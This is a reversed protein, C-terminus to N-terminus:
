VLLPGTPAPTAGDPWCDEELSGERGWRIEDGNIWLCFSEASQHPLSLGVLRGGSNRIAMPKGVDEDKLKPDLSATVDFIDTRGYEDLDAPPDLPLRDVVLGEGDAAVGLRLTSGDAFCIQLRLPQAWRVRGAFIHLEAKIALIKMPRKQLSGRYDAVSARDGM